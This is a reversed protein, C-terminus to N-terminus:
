PERWYDSEDLEPEIVFRTPRLPGEVPRLVEDSMEPFPNEPRTRRPEEVPPTRRPTPASQRRSEAEPLTPAPEREPGSPVSEPWEGPGPEVPPMVETVSCCNAVRDDLVRWQPRAYGFHGPDTGKPPVCRDHRFPDHMRIPSCEDEIGCRGAPVSCGTAVLALGVLSTTVAFPFRFTATM